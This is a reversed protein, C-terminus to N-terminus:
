RGLATELPGEGGLVLTISKNIHSNHKNSDKVNESYKSIAFQFNSVELVCTDFKGEGEIM